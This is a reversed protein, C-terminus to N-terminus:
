SATPAVAGFLLGLDAEDFPEGGGGASPDVVVCSPSPNVSRRRINPSLLSGSRFNFDIQSSIHIAYLSLTNIRRVIAAITERATPIGCDSCGAFGFSGPTSHTSPRAIIMAMM